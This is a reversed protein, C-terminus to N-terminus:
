SVYEKPISNRPFRPLGPVDAFMITVLKREVTRAHEDGSRELEALQQRLAAIAPVVVADGLIQRQAELGAIAALM